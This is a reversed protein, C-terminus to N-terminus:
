NQGDSLRLDSFFWFMPNKSNKISLETFDQTKLEWAYGEDLLASKKKGRLIGVTQNRYISSLLSLLFFLFFNIFKQRSREGERRRRNRKTKTKNKKLPVWM